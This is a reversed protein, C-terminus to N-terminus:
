VHPNVEGTFVHSIDVHNFWKDLGIKFVFFFAGITSVLVAYLIQKSGMNKEKFYVFGNKYDVGSIELKSINWKIVEQYESDNQLANLDFPEALKYIDIVKIRGVSMIQYKETMVAFIDNWNKMSELQKYLGIIDSKLSDNKIIRVGESKLNELGITTFSAGGGGLINAYHFKLSDVLPTKNTLHEM